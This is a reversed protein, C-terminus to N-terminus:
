AAQANSQIERITAAVRTWIDYGSPNGEQLMEQARHEARGLAGLDYKRLMTEACWNYDRDLLMTRSFSRAIELTGRSSEYIAATASVHEMIDGTIEEGLFAGQGPSRQANKFLHDSGGAPLRSGQLGRGTMEPAEFILSRLEVNLPSGESHRLHGWTAASPFAPRSRKNHLLPRCVM